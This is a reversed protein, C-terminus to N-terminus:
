NNQQFIFVSEIFPSYFLFGLHNLFYFNEKTAVFSELTIGFSLRLALSTLFTNENVILRDIQNSPCYKHKCKYGQNTRDKKQTVKCNLAIPLKLYIVGIAGSLREGVNRKFADCYVFYFAGFCFLPWNM